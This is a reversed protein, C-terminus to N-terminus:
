AGPSGSNGATAPPVRAACDVPTGGHFLQEVRDTDSAQIANNVPLLWGFMTQAKATSYPDSASPHPDLTSIAPWSQAQEITQAAQQATAADGDSEATLWDDMWACVATAAVNGRLAGTSIDQTCGAPSAAGCGNTEGILLDLLRTRWSEYGPPYPIDATEKLAVSAFNTGALNLYEGPGGAEIQQPTTASTGTEANVFVGAAAAVGAITLTAVGAVFATRPAIAWPRRRGRERRRERKRIAVGLEDLQASSTASM